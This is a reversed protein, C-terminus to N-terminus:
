RNTYLSMLKNLSVYALMYAAVATLLVIHFGAVLAIMISIVPAMVSLCANIAWAWPILARNREGLLKIGLPFPIGMFFGPPLLFAALVLTKATLPFSSCSSLLFPHILSFVFLLFALVYLLRPNGLAPFRSSFASGAGSSLLIATLVVAFAYSPNEFLLISKQIIAVEFFMFGLGLMAFYLLTFFRERQRFSKKKEPSKEPNGSSGGLVVPLIIMVSSLVLVIIFIFPLLYGEELFYLWKRNVKEYVSEINSIKLYYHFFPNEDYVPNIDFLYNDIFSSREAPNLLNRFGSFYEDSPTRIYIGTEEAKIGPYYVLDFHRTRAFDKIKKIEMESFPSKKALMTMSDWSRIAAIRVSMEQVGMQEFAKIMTALIRFETRPPPVLYLSVSIAGDETLAGIYKEFAEVTYRYDESIGSLGSVSAGTLPIDILDYLHFERDGNGAANILNRGYGTSINDAYIGGSFEGFSDRILRVIMPNSEVRYIEGAGYYEAMLVHLGGRPDLVLVNDRTGTKYAAAAPIFDIFQLGSRDRGDTVVDIRDGDIALGIQEPLPDPYRLSLGPAFRASPSRFTDIRSYSSYYTDIHEAGPYKLALSLKKYPSINMRILGPHIFMISISVAICLLSLVKVPKTGSILAGALCLLSAALVAYEPAAANLLVLVALSGSGAGLLDFSYIFKSKDSYMLFAAAILIGAFFFPVSLVLCYLALYLFQEPEWSFKVPDFPIHNSIIYSVLLSMGALAACLSIGTETCLRGSLRRSVALVTGASGTGLMAISIVMFAFHYWLYISFLRTLSVEFMLLSCTVPFITLYLRKM